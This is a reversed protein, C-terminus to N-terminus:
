SLGESIDQTISGGPFELTFATSGPPLFFRLLAPVGDAYEQCVKGSQDLIRGSGIVITEESVLEKFVQELKNMDSALQHDWIDISQGSSDKLGKEEFMNDLEEMQGADVEDGVGLLILKLFPKKQNAIEQGYQWCYQKVNELDEIIGDTVFVCLAAPQKVGRAPADKFKETFYQLPPLLKTGRGWPLKKPGIISITQIQQSDFEGVVEVQSGDPSCAWYILDVKGNSSFNALYNIMTRTVPEVVNPISAAAGFVGGVVGSVGYMKKMSASGDLALGMRVGELDPITLITAVIKLDGSSQKFVNVEGFPEVVNSLQM